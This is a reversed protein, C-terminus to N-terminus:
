VGAKAMERDLSTKYENWNKEPGLIPLKDNQMLCGEILSLKIRLRKVEKELEEITMSDGLENIGHSMILELLM